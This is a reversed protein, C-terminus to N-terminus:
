DSTKGVYFIRQTQISIKVNIIIENLFYNFFSIIGFKISLFAVYTSKTHESLM